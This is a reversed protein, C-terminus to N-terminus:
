REVNSLSISFNVSCTLPYFELCEKKNNNIVSNNLSSCSSKGLNSFAIERSLLAESGRDNSRVFINTGVHYVDEKM